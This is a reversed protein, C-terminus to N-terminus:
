VGLLVSGCNLKENFPIQQSKQMKMSLYKIVDM